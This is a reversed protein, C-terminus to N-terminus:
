ATKMPARSTTHTKGSPLKVEFMYHYLDPHHQSQGNIKEFELKSSQSSYLDINTWMVRTIPSRFRGWEIIEKGSDMMQRARKRKTRKDLFWLQAVPEPLHFVLLLSDKGIRREPHGTKDLFDKSTFADYLAFRPRTMGAATLVALIPGHSRDKNTQYAILAQVFADKMQRSTKDVFGLTKCLLPNLRTQNRPSVNITTNPPIQPRCEGPLPKGCRTEASM